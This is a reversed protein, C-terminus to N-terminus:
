MEFNDLFNKEEKTLGGVGVKEIKELVDDLEFKIKKTPIYDEENTTIQEKSKFIFEKLKQPLHAVVLTELPFLLYYRVSDNIMFNLLEAALNKPDYDSDFIVIINGSTEIIYRLGKVAPSNAIIEVCFFEVDEHDEFLGYIFLTYTKIEM